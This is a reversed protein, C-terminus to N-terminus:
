PGVFGKREAYSSGTKKAYNQKGASDIKPGMGQTGYENGDINSLPMLEEEVVEDDQHSSNYSSGHLSDLTEKVNKLTKLFSDYDEVDETSICDVVGKLSLVIDKLLHQPSLEESSEESEESDEIQVEDEVFDEDAEYMIEDLSEVLSRYDYQYDM